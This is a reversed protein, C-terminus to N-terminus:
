ALGLERQLTAFRQQSRLADFLPSVNLFSLLYSGEVRAALVRRGGCSYGNVALMLADFSIVFTISSIVCSLRRGAPTCFRVSRTLPRM